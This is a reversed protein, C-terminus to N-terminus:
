REEEEALEVEGRHQAARIRAASARLWRTEAERLQQAQEIEVPRSM